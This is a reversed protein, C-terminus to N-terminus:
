GLFSMAELSLYPYEKWPLSSLPLIRTTNRNVRTPHHGAAPTQMQNKSINKRMNQQKRKGTVIPSPAPM